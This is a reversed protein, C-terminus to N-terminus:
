ARSPSPGTPLTATAEKIWARVQAAAQQPAVALVNHDAWWIGRGGRYGPCHRALWRAVVANPVLPDIGGWLAYVPVRTQRAVPRPDHLRILKLRHAVAQRDQPQLRRQAFAELGAQAEATPRHRARRYGAYLALAMRVWWAPSHGVMWEMGRVGVPWPHRVFGGALILGEVKFQAQPRHAQQRALLAWAVQSGFSEGLLWGSRIGQAALTEEIAVAYDALSWETTWPYTLEGLRLDRTVAARFDAILTWDGHLGPLYVLTPWGQDGHVRCELRSAAAGRIWANPEPSFEDGTSVRM